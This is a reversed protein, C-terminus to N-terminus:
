SVENNRLVKYQAYENLMRGYKVGREIKYRDIEVHAMNIIMINYLMDVDRFERELSDLEARATKFKLGSRAARQDMM